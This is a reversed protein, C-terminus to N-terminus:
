LCSGPYGPQIVLRVAYSNAVFVERSCSLFASWISNKPDDPSTVVATIPYRTLKDRLSLAYFQRFLAINEEVDDDPINAYDGAAERYYISHIRSSLTWRRTTPFERAAQEPTVGQLWLDFFYQFRARETPALSLIANLAYFVDASSLIPILNAIETDQTYVSQGSRLERDVYRLADGAPQQMGWYESRDEYARWQQIGGIAVCAAALVFAAYVGVRSSLFRRPLLSLVMAVALASAIPQIFYWHYHHPVIYHGTVLHQNLAIVAGLGLAPLLPWTRPWIRRSAFALGLLIGLWVGLVPPGHRLVMGLRESSEPYWPHRTVVFLHIAYPMSAATVVVWFLSADALYRWRKGAAHWLTLLGFIVLLYTWAYVYSYVLVIACIAAAIIPMRKRRGIWEAAAFLGAFFWFGSWQPNVARAFRLFDFQHQSPQLFHSLDWPAALLAGGMLISVTTLVSIWPRGTVSFLFAAFALFCGISLAAKALFFATVADVGLLRGASAITFEPLPPQLAPIDKPDSYFPNGLGPYGDYIERVRAAYFVEGDPGFMPIGQYPYRVDGRQLVSPLLVLGALLVAFFFAALIPKGFSTVTATPASPSVSSVIACRICPENGGEQKLFLADESKIGTDRGGPPIKGGTAVMHLMQPM